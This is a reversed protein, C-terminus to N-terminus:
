QVSIVFQRSTWIVCNARNTHVENIHQHQAHHRASATSKNKPYLLAACLLQVVRHLLPAWAMCVHELPLKHAASLADQLYTASFLNSQGTWADWLPQAPAYFWASAPVEAYM